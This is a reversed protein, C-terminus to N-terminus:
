MCECVGGCVCLNFHVQYFVGGQPQADRSTHVSLVADFRSIRHTVLVEVSIGPCNLDKGVHEQSLPAM